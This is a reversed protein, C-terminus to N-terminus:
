DAADVVVMEIRQQVPKDPDSSHEIAKLDPLRKNLLSNIASVKVPTLEVDKGQYKTGFIGAHLYSILRDTQIKKRVDEQHSKRIREAM